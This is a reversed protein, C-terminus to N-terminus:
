IAGAREALADSGSPLAFVDLGLEGAEVRVPAGAGPPAQERQGDRRTPDGGRDRDM